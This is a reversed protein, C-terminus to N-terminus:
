PAELDPGFFRDMPIAVPAGDLAVEILHALLPLSALKLGPVTDSAFATRMIALIELCELTAGEMKEIAEAKSLGYGLWKGFRGTRGGNTTVDLDGAGALSSAHSATGGLAIVLRRMEMISQAMVASELNHMAVSGAVGGAREHMGTAFAIGMAYANKMAACVEAGVVDTTPFVRYYPGEIWGRIKENSSADRGALVVCTPVKRAIEGAICPGCIAAPTVKGRLAAPLAERVVDPLCHVAGDRVRLGKTIMFVPQGARLMPPIRECAWEVGASSVGLAVADVEHRALVQDLQEIAYPVVGDPMALKLKPHVRDRKIGQIIEGDLHTGVLLVQHGREVIPVALASGMMGAGLILITTM